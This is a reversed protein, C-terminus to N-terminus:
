NFREGDKVGKGQKGSRYSHAINGILRVLATSTATKQFFEGVEEAKDALNEAKETIHNVHNLIQNLKILAFIGLILFVALATSLIIVLIEESTNM